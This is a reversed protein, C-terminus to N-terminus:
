LRSPGKSTAPRKNRLREVLAHLTAQAEPAFWGDLFEEVPLSAPDDFLRTLNARAMARTALMAQRPLQLLPALWALTRTVVHDVDTLEDVMGAALADDADLMAGEILLREARYAGVLRRLAAQICDPVTLGVQVENLGIKYEGRAMVRYDCFIALVAGGAPSHGTVAAAIPVPSRALAACLGFFDRWFARMADRDLQLLAPIDLGASFLGPSGSLVLAAAGENPAQEIAQKLATVLEPNLANVPPRALRLELIGHDHQIRELM